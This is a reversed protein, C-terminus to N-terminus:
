SNRMTNREIGNNGIAVFFYIKRPETRKEEKDRRASDEAFRVHESIHATEFGKITCEDPLEDLIIVDNKFDNIWGPEPLHAWGWGDKSCEEMVDLVVKAHGGGGIIFVM